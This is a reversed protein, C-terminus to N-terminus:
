PAVCSFNADNSKLPTLLAPLLLDCYSVLDALNPRSGGMFRREKGIARTWQKCYDYLSERVDPKLHYKKKLSKSLFYMSVAGVYKAAVREVATFNGSARSIYDFAQLAESPTRYINPPIAHVLKADVWERWEREERCPSFLASVFVLLIYCM